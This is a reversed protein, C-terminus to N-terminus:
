KPSGSAAPDIITIPYSAFHKVNYTMLHRIDYIQMMAVYRADHARFGTVGYLEVLSVWKQM